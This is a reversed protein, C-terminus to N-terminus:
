RARVGGTAEEDVTEQAHANLAQFAEAIAGTAAHLDLDSAKLAALSMQAGGGTLLAHLIMLLDSLSPDKLREQLAGITRAGLATEIDALAGLTLRLRHDQGDITLTTDGRPHPGTM